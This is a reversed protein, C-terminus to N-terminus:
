RRKFSGMVWGDDGVGKRWRRRVGPLGGAGGRVEGGRSGM